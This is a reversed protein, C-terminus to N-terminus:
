GASPAPPAGGGGQPAGGGGGGGGGRGGRRRRRRRSGGADQGERGGQPPQQGPPRRDQRQQQQQQPPRQQPPQGGGGAGQRGRRRKRRRRSSDGGQPRAGGVEVPQDRSPAEEGGAPEDSAAEEPGDITTEYYPVDALPIEEAFPAPSETEDGPAAEGPWVPPAPEQSASVDRAVQAKDAAEKAAQDALRVRPGREERERPTHTM